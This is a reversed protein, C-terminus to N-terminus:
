EINAAQEKVRDIVSKLDLGIRTIAETASKSCLTNAERNFEQALFELRRGVPENQNLLTRTAAVHAYLRDIEERIDAKSALMAAESQIREPPLANESLLASLQSQLREYLVVGAGDANASADATLSEIQAVQDSIIQALQSGEARRENVLTELVLDFGTLIDAKIQENNESEDMETATIVGPVGLLLEAQAPAPTIGAKELESRAKSAAHVANSLAEENLIFTQRSQTREITIAVTVSGRKLVNQIASRFKKEISELGKPYRFRIDLGRGNVTKIDIRWVSDGTQGDTSAFGTM